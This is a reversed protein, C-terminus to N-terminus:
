FKLNEFNFNIELLHQQFQNRVILLTQIDSKSRILPSKLHNSHFKLGFDVYILHIHFLILHTDEYIWYTNRTYGYM